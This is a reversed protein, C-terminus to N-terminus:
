SDEVAGMHNCIASTRTQGGSDILVVTYGESILSHIDSVVADKTTLPISKFDEPGPVAGDSNVALPM